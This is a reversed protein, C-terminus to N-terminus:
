VGFAALLLYYYYCSCRRELSLTIKRNAEYYDHLIFKVLLNAIPSINELDSINVSMEQSLCIFIFFSLSRYLTSVHSIHLSLFLFISLFIFHLFFSLFCTKGASHFGSYICIWILLQGMFITIFSTQHTPYLSFEGENLQDRGKCRCNYVHKLCMREM